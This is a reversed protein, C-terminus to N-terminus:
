QDNARGTESLVSDGLQYDIGRVQLDVYASLRENAEYLAKVYLNGDVKLSRSYYYRDGIESEGAFRAWIIEGFHDGDYQNIGGGLTLNLNQKPDYNLTFVTGYFHNDLWRRRVLDTSALTDGGVVLSDMGLPPYAALADEERFEEFFGRGRTYHLAASLNLNPLVDHGFHVQYHTQGYNDVQDEYTYYNYRRDSSFLNVSDEPTLYISGKNNFYHNLLAEEDGEILAEPVGYWSQFTRENGSFVNAKLFTKEGYYGGSVFWSQLDSRARDVYGDSQINSLRAEFAFGNDLLGSGLSLTNKLTNFSGASNDLLVFPEPAVQSTQINISAGFAAGGITSTGVGRQVQVSNVSSALDPLNVWFVGHSESDNLPIGNITVNIRTPDSGRIRIGTYGVGAGADSTVVTSALQDLLFPFDQGFNQAEVEEKELTTYTTATKENARLSTILVDEMRGKRILGIDLKLGGSGLKVERSEKAYGLANVNLLYSGQPLSEFEFKGEADTFTIKELRALSVEAGEVPKGAESSVKGTILSQSFLSLPLLWLM